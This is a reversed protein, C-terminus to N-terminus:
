PKYVEHKYHITAQKNKLVWQSPKLRPSCRSIYSVLDLSIESYFYLHIAALSSGTHRVERLAFTRWGSPRPHRLLLSPTARKFSTSTTMTTASPATFATTTCKQWSSSFSLPFVFVWDVVQIVEDTFLVKRFRSSLFTRREAILRQCVLDSLTVGIMWDHWLEVSVHM